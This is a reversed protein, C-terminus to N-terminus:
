LETVSTGETLREETVRGGNPELRHAREVGEEYHSEMIRRNSKLGVNEDDNLVHGKRVRRVRYEHGDIKTANCSGV